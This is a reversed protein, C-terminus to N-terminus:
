PYSHRDGPTASGGSHHVWIMRGMTAKRNKRRVSEVSEGSQKYRCKQAYLKKDM